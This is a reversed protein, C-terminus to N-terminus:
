DFRLIIKVDRNKGGDVMIDMPENLVFKDFQDSVILKREPGRMVARPAYYKVGYHEPNHFILYGLDSSIMVSVKDQSEIIVANLKGEMLETLFVARGSGTNIEIVKESM